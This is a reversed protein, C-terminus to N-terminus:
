LQTSALGELAAADSCRIYDCMPERESDFHNYYCCTQETLHILRDDVLVPNDAYRKRDRGALGPVM